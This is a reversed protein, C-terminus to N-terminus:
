KSVYYPVIIIMIIVVQTLNYIFQMQSKDEKGEGDKRVRWAGVLKIGGPVM